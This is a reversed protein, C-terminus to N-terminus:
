GDITPNILGYILWDGVIRGRMVRPIKALLRYATTEKENIMKQVLKGIPTASTLYIVGFHDERVALEYAADGTLGKYRLSHYTDNWLAPRLVKRLAYKEPSTTEGLIHKNPTRAIAAELPAVIATDQPWSTLHEKSHKLGNPILVQIFLLGAVLVGVAKAASWRNAVLAAGLAGALPAAFILGFAVHKSFSTKEHIHIQQAAGVISSLAL